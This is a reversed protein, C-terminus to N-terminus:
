GENSCTDQPRNLELKIGFTSYIKNPYLTSDLIYATNNCRKTQLAKIYCKYNSLIILATNSAKDKIFLDNSNAISYILKNYMTSKETPNNTSNNSELKLVEKTALSTITPNNPNNTNNQSNQTTPNSNNNAELNLMFLESEDNEETNDLFIENCFSADIENGKVTVLYLYSNKPKTLQIQEKLKQAIIILINQKFKASENSFAYNFGNLDNTNYSNKSKALSQNFRAQLTKKVENYNTNDIFYINHPKFRHKSNINKDNHSRSNESTFYEFDRRIEFKARPVLEDLYETYFSLLEKLSKLENPNIYM